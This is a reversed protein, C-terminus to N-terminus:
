AGERELIWEVAQKIGDVVVSAGNTEDGQKYVGTRVLVGDWSTSSNRHFINCRRTGEIDSTPNDGVMYFREATVDQMPVLSRLREELFRYTADTPKGWQRIAAIREDITEAPVRLFRLREAYLAKLAVKFAGQGFRPFPHESKWLVDPNSFHCPMPPATPDYELTLPTPSCLVDVAIQIAEYWEYPDCMVLVAEFPMESAASAKGPSSLSSAVAVATHSTGGEKAARFPNINYHTVAYDSYHVAHKLGYNHAVELVKPKPDGILLVRSDKLNPALMTQWPTYSLVMREAGISVGSRQAEPLASAGNIKKEMSDAYAKETLGGGGNTVFCFPMNAAAVKQLAELGDESWERGYKFVGDIDFAIAVRTDTRSRKSM